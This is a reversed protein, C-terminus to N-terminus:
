TSLNHAKVVADIITGVVVVPILHKVDKPDNAIDLGYLMGLETRTLRRYATVDKSVLVEILLRSEGWKGIPPLATNHSYELGHRQHTGRSLANLRQEKPSHRVAEGVYDKFVTQTLEVTDMDFPKTSAIIAVSGGKIGSGFYEWPCKRVDTHEYTERLITLIERTYGIPGGEDYGEPLIVIVTKAKSEVMSTINNFPDSMEQDTLESFPKQATIITTVTTKKIAMNKGSM